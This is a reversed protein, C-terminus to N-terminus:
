CPSSNCTLRAANGRGHYGFKKRRCSQTEASSHGSYKWCWHFTLTCAHFLSPCLPACASHSMFADKEIKTGFLMSQDAKEWDQLQWLPRIIKTGKESYMIYQSSQPYCSWKAWYLLIHKQVANCVRAKLLCTSMKSGTDLQTHTHTSSSLLSFAAVVPYYTVHRLMHYLM